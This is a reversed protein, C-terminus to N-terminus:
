INPVMELVAMVRENLKTIKMIVAELETGTTSVSDPTYATPLRLIERRLMADLLRLTHANMSVIAEEANMAHHLRLRAERAQTFQMRMAALMAPTIGSWSAVDRHDIQLGHINAPVIYHGFQVGLEQSIDMVHQESLCNMYATGYGSSCWGRYRALEAMFRQGLYENVAIAGHAAPALATSTVPPHSPMLLALLPNDTEHYIYLVYVPVDEALGQQQLLELSKGSPSVPALAVNPQGVTIDVWRGLERFNGTHDMYNDSIRTPRNSTGIRTQPLLESSDLYGVAPVTSPLSLVETFTGERGESRSISVGIFLLAASARVAMEPARERAILPPFAVNGWQAIGGHPLASRRTAERDARSSKNEITDRHSPRREPTNPTHQVIGSTSISEGARVGTLPSDLRAHIPELGQLTRIVNILGFMTNPLERGNAEDQAASIAPIEDRVRKPQLTDGRQTGEEIASTLSDQMAREGPTATCSPSQIGFNFEGWVAPEGVPDSTLPRSPSALVAAREGESERSASLEEDRHQVPTDQMEVMQRLAASAYMPVDRRLPPHILRSSRTRNSLPAAPPSSVSSSSSSSPM